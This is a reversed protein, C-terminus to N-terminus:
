QRRRARTIFLAIYTITIIHIMEVQRPNAGIKPIIGPSRYKICGMPIVSDYWISLRNKYLAVTEKQKSTIHDKVNSGQAIMRRFFFCCREECFRNHLSLGMIDRLKLIFPLNLLNSLVNLVTTIANVIEYKGRTTVWDNAFDSEILRKCFGLVNSTLVFKTKLAAMNKDDRRIKAFEKAFQM